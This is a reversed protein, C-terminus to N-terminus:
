DAAEFNWYTISPVIAEPPRIIGHDTGTMPPTKSPKEKDGESIGESLKLAAATWNQVETQVRVKGFRVTVPGAHGLIQRKTQKERISAGKLVLRGAQGNKAYKCVDLRTRRAQVQRHGDNAFM